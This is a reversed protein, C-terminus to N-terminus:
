ISKIRPKSKIEGNNEKIKIKDNKKVRGAGGNKDKIDSTKKKM